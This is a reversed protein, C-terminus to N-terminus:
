TFSLSHIDVSVRLTSIQSEHEHQLISLCNLIAVPSGILCKLSVSLSKVAIYQGLSTAATCQLPCLLSSLLTASYDAPQGDLWFPPEKWFGKVASAKSRSLDQPVPFVVIVIYQPLILFIHSSLLFM